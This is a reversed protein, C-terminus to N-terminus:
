KGDLLPFYFLLLLLIGTKILCLMVDHTLPFREGPACALHSLTQKQTQRLNLIYIYEQNSKAQILSQAM